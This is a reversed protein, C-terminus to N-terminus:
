SFYTRVASDRRCRSIRAIVARNSAQQSGIGGILQRPMAHQACAALDFQAASRRVLLSRPQFQFAHLKGALADIHIPELM